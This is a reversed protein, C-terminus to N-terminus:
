GNLLHQSRALSAAARRSAVDLKALVASVHHEATKPTISMREAIEGNTCGEALLQLIELQRSTLGFRNARTTARPGRPVRTVGRARMGRRM